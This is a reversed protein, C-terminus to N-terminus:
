CWKPDIGYRKHAEIEVVQSDDNVVIGNIADLAGKV